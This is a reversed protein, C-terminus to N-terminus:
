RASWLGAPTVDVARSRCARSRRRGRGAPARGAARPQVRDAPEVLVGLAQDQEGVVAVPGLVHEMRAVADLALVGDPERAASGRGPALRELRPTSSASPMAVRARGARGSARGLVAAEVVQELRRGVRAEDPDPHVCGGPSSAGAAASTRRPRRARAAGRGRGSRCAGGRRQSPRDPASPASTRRRPPPLGTRALARRRPQASAATIGSIPQGGADHVASPAGPVPATMAGDGRRGAARTWAGRGPLAGACGARRPEPALTPHQVARRPGTTTPVIRGRGVDPSSLWGRELDATSSPPRTSPRTRCRAAPSRARRPAARRRATAEGAARDPRTRAASSSGRTRPSTSLRRRSSPSGCTSIPGSAPEIRSRFAAATALTRACLTSRRAPRGSTARTDEAVHGVAWRGPDRTASSPGASSRCSCRRRRRPAAPEPQPEHSM